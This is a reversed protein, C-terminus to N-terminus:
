LKLDARYLTLTFMEGSFDNFYVSRADNSISFYGKQGLDPLDFRKIPNLNWDFVFIAEQYVEYEKDEANFYGGVKCVIYEDNAQLALISQQMDNTSLFCFEENSYEVPTYRKENLVKGTTVDFTYLMFQDSSAIVALDNGRTEIFGQAYTWKILDNAPIDTRKRKKVDFSTYDITQYGKMEQNNWVVVSNKNIEKVNNKEFEFPPRITAIVSGNPLKTMRSVWVSDPFTTVSVKRDEVPVNRVIEQKLFTKITNKRGEYFYVSDGAIKFGTVWEMEEASMGLSTTAALPEGTNLNYCIYTDDVREDFAEVYWLVSDDVVNINCTTILDDMFNDQMVKLQKYLQFDLQEAVAFDTDVNSLPFKSTNNCSFLFFSILSALFSQIIKKRM